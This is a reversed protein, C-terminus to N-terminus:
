DISDYIVSGNENLERVTIHGTSNKKIKVIIGSDCIVIIIIDNETKIGEIADVIEEWECDLMLSGVKGSVIPMYFTRKESTWLAPSSVCLYKNQKNLANYMITYDEENYIYETTFSGRESM